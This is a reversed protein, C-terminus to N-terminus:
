RKYNKQMKIVSTMPTKVDQQWCSIFYEEGVIANEELIWKRNAELKNQLNKEGFLHEFSWVKAKKPAFHARSLFGRQLFFFTLFRLWVRTLNEM